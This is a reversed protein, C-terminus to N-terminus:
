SGPRAPHDYLGSRDRKKMRSGSIAKDFSEQITSDNRGM